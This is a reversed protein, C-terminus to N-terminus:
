SRRGYVHLQPIRDVGERVGRWMYTDEMRIMSRRAKMYRLDAVAMTRIAGMLPLLHHVFLMILVHRGTLSTHRGRTNLRCPDIQLDSRNRIRRDSLQM